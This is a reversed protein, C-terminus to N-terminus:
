HLEISKYSGTEITPTSLILHQVRANSAKFKNQLKTFYNVLKNILILVKYMIHAKEINLIFTM